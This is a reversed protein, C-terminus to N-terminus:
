ACHRGCASRSVGAEARPTARNGYPRTEQMEALRATIDAGVCVCHSFGCDASKIPTVAIGLSFTTQDKCRGEVEVSVSTGRSIAAALSALAAQSTETRVLILPSQGLLELVGYGHRECVARNVYVITWTPQSIDVIMFHTSATDLACNRLQLEAQLRGRQAREWTLLSRLEEITQDTMTAAGLCPPLGGQAPVAGPYPVTL